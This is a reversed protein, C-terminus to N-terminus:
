KLDSSSKTSDDDKRSGELKGNIIIDNRTPPVYSDTPLPYDAPLPKVLHPTIIFVLESRDTQFSSSRFLAGIIPLEGLFPFASISSRVNNKILGGIAFSQGDMLQVTTIARRTSFAPLIATGGIGTAAVAVGKPDLESVEPAVKLNIRGGSLVTPTFKLSVGFEKEELTITNNGGTNTIVPIYIKGGALFSGEQGSIAMVNPEALVKVLGDQKEMDVGLDAKLEGRALPTDFGGAATLASTNGFGLVRTGNIDINLPALLSKLRLNGAINTGFKDLLAKSIEAVKVELMVQQPAAVDLLNIVRPNSSSAANGTGRVYANAIEVVRDAAASDSVTGSLVVSDSASAIKLGAEGPMLEKFSANLGATDMGVVVDVMSCLGARDVLVINTTGISKGLVYIETPSLLLVDVDAVGTKANQQSSRSKDDDTKTDESPRGAHANQPNGLLM